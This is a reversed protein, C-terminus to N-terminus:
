FQFYIFQSSLSSKNFFLLFIGTSYAFYRVYYPLSMFVKYVAVRARLIHIAFCALLLTLAGPTLFVTGTKLTLISRAIAYGQSFNEARFFIWALSILQFTVFIKLFNAIPNEPLKIKKETLKEMVLYFGHLLGWIVFTWRAGHWLGGLFMTIMVNVYTRELGMRNGGLPIYLYDKLWSSLSIHWRKWFDSFGSAIYPLNFNEPIDYGMIKMCGIAIDSYASFDCYIQFGFAYAALLLTLWNYEAHQAFAHNVFIALNDAIVMKKILGWFIRHSGLVLNDFRLLRTKSFQPIVQTARIIPGAILQPFFSIFLATDIFSAHRTRRRYVDIVYSMAQFTFFSIGIPLVINVPTIPGINILSDLSNINDIVFNTYKFTGLLLLNGAIAFSVLLKRKRANQSRAIIGAIFYNFLISGVILWGYSANWHAYFFLSAAVLFVKKYTNKEQLLFVIALVVPFFVAFAVSNFLM